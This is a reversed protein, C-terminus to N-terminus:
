KCCYAKRDNNYLDGGESPVCNQSNGIWTWRGREVYLENTTGIIDDIEEFHECAYVWESYLCLRKGEDRCIRNQEFWTTRPNPEKDMCSNGVDLMDDPCKVELEGDIIVEDTTLIIKDATLTIEDAQKVELDGSVKLNGNILINTARLIIRETIPEGIRGLFLDKLPTITLRGINSGIQSESIFYGVPITISFKDTSLGIVVGTLSLVILM